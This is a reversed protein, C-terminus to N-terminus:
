NRFSPKYKLSNGYHLQLFYTRALKEDFRGSLSIVNFLEGYVAYPMIYYAIKKIKFDSKELIGSVSARNIGIVNQHNCKSLVRVENMFGELKDKSNVSQPKMIKIAYLQSTMIDECM